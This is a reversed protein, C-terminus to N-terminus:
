SDFKIKKFGKEYEGPKCNITEILKEIENWFETYKTLIEKNRDTSDLILYKNGNSEEVCGDVEDIFIHLPNVGLADNHDFCKM